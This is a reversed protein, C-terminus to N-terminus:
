QNELATSWAPVSASTSPEENYHVDVHLPTGVNTNTSKFEAFLKPHNIKLRSSLNTTNGSFKISRFCHKCSANKDYKKRFYNWLKSTPPAM